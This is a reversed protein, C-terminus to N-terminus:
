GLSDMLQYSDDKELIFTRTITVAPGPHARSLSTDPPFDRCTRPKQMWPAHRADRSSLPKGGVAWGLRVQAGNIRDDCCDARNWVRVLGIVAAPALKVEAWHTVRTALDEASHWYRNCPSCTQVCVVFRPDLPTTPTPSHAPPHTPPPPQRYLTPTPPRGGGM